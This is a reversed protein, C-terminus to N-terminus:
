WSVKTLVKVAEAWCKSAGSIFGLAPIKKKRRGRRSGKSGIPPNQPYTERLEAVYAARGMTTWPLGPPRRFYTCASDAEEEADDGGGGLLGGFSKSKPAATAAIKAKKKKSGGLLGGFPAHPFAQYPKPM